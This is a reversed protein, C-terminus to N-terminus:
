FDSPGYENKIVLESKHRGKITIQKMVLAVRNKPDLHNWITKAMTELDGNLPLLRPTHDFPLPPNGDHEYTSVYAALGPALGEFHYHCHQTSADGFISPRIVSLEATLHGHVFSCVGTIRSTMNPDPEHTRERLSYYSGQGARYGEEVTKTQDGNGVIFRIPPRRLDAVEVMTPYLTLEPNKAPRSPDALATWVSGRGRDVYIRNKSDESRALIIAGQVAHTGSEDEGVFVLRGPNSNHQLAYLNAMATAMLSSVLKM